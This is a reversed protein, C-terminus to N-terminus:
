VALSEYIIDSLGVGGVTISIGDKKNKITSNVIIKAELYTLIANPMPRYIELVSKSTTISITNSSIGYRNLKINFKNCKLNPLKFTLIKEDISINLQDINLYGDIGNGFLQVFSDKNRGLNTGILTVLGNSYSGNSLTPINYTFTVCGGFNVNVPLDRGFQSSDLRCELETTTSKIFKCQENGITISPTFSSNLTSSLKECHIYNKETSLENVIISVSMPGPDVRSFNNVQIQTHNVSINFNPQNIGDFYVKVLKKDTFFNDGNITLIQKLSESVTSSIKPSEYSFPFFTNEVSDDFVIEFNGSGPPVIVTINNCDFSPDSFNGKVVFNKYDGYSNLIYNPGGRIRLYNGTIIIDDGSTRPKKSYKLNTVFPYSFSYIDFTYDEVPSSVERACVKSDISGWLRSFPEDSHFSCYRRNGIVISCDFYNPAMEYRPTTENQYMILRTPYSLYSEFVLTFSKEDFIIDMSYPYNVSYGSKFISFLFLFLFILKQEM